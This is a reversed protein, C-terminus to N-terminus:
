KQKLIMQTAVGKAVLKGSADRVVCDALAITRGRHIIVGEAVLEGSVVPRLFNMKLELTTFSEGEGLTTILAMGMAADALDTLIGGHVTGMPNHFRRGVTMALTVKGEGHSVLRMGLTVSIPPPKGEGDLFAKFEDRLDAVFTV